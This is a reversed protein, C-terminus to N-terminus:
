HIYYFLYFNYFKMISANLSTLGESIVDKTRDLTDSAALFIDNNEEMLIAILKDYSDGCFVPM